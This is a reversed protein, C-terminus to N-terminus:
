FALVAKLEFCTKKIDESNDKDIFQSASFGLQFDSKVQFVADVSYQFGFYEIDEHNDGAAANFVVDSGASFLLTELPKYSCSLGAKLIGSYLFKQASYTSANKTFGAFASFDGQEGSAYLADAAFSIKKLYYELQIESLNSIKVKGDYDVFGLTSSVDYFFSSAVPGEMSFTAYMRNFGDGELRFAALFEASLTQGAFLNPFSLALDAALYKEAFDYLKDYDANFSYYGNELGPTETGSNGASYLFTSPASTIMETNLANLLGTYSAYASIKFWNNRLGFMLGDANQSFIKGTLDSFYFRGFQIGLTSFSIERSFSFEFLSFDLANKYNEDQMDAEFNYVFEAAFHNEGSKEFPVRVWVSASNKQNLKFDNKGCDEFSSNNKVLAGFDFAFSNFGSVLAFFAFIVPRFKKASGATKEIMNM